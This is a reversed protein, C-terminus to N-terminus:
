ESMRLDITKSLGSYTCLFTLGAALMATYIYKVLHSNRFQGSTPPGVLNSPQPEEKLEVEVLTELGLARQKESTEM